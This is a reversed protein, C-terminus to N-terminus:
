TKPKAMSIVYFKKDEELKDTRIVVFGLEELKKVVDPNPHGYSVGDTSIVAEGATIGKEPISKSSNGGHHPVVMNITTTNSETPIVDKFIQSYSHDACLLATTQENALTLLLGSNNISTSQEGVYLKYTKGQDYVSLKNRHDTKNPSAVVHVESCHKKLKEYLELSTVSICM